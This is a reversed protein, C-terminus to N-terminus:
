GTFGALRLAYETWFEGAKPEGRGCDGDSEGPNKVWLLADLGSRGTDTTPTRGLARGPPNCWSEGGLAGNGNRSTDIVFPRGGLVASLQRGYEYSQDTTFFNSVNLAFGDAAGVGARRLGDALAARDQVWGANGADLYVRVGPNRKLERVAHALLEYREAAAPGCGQLTQPVADPELVVWASRGTLASAVGDIWSRYAAGDAMGGASYLGCDRQPIAYAVLLVPQGTPAARATLAAVQDRATPGTLWLASPQETIRGLAGARAADLGAAQRAAATDRSIYFGPQAATPRAPSVGTAMVATPAPEATSRCGAGALMLGIGVLAFLQRRVM